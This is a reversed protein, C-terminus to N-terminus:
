VEEYSVEMNVKGSRMRLMAYGLAFVVVVVNGVMEYPKLVSFLLATQGLTAVGGLISWFALTGKSVHFKSQGWIEPIVATMRIASFCIIAFLVNNLIVAMNGITSINFEFFIPVLSELYLLTLIIYPTKYKKSIAGLGSPLWGDVCAQLIPKTVWGLAANLTTTLAFMAGGVIFFIYVPRPLIKAAVVSLPQNAVESIPLVGAAVTAMLAYFLAIVLTAVIIVFPIDKTPNKAEAGLYVIVNAGGIAWTYLAGAALLGQWGGTMFDPGEFYGPQVQPLGFCIFVTLAVVMALTMLNQVRAASQIGLLNVVYFFTLVSFAVLTKNIGPIMALTYDAFSLAYLALATWALIHVIVFFGSCTKNVLLGLQTYFGGRMRITGGVFINPISILIVFLAGVIMSLSASRGTMALGVGMLAFIGSGITQGIAISMLDKRGLVRDLEKTSKVQSM